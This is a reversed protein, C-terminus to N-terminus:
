ENNFRVITFNPRFTRIFKGTEIKPDEDKHEIFLARKLNRNASYNLLSFSSDIPHYRVLLLKIRYLGSEPSIDEFASIIGFEVSSKILRSHEKGNNLLDRWDFEIKTSEGKSYEIEFYLNSYIGSELARIQYKSSYIIKNEINEEDRVITWKGEFRAEGKTSYFYNGNFRYMKRKAISIYEGNWDDRRKERWTKDIYKDLNGLDIEAQIASTLVKFEEETKYEIEEILPEM